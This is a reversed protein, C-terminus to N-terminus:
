YLLTILLWKCSLRNYKQERLHRSIYQKRSWPVVNVREAPFVISLTFYERADSHFFGPTGSTCNIQIKYVENRTRLSSIEDACFVLLPQHHSTVLLPNKSQNLPM